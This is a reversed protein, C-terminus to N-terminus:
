ISSSTSSRRGNSIRALLLALFVSVFMTTSKGEFHDEGLCGITYNLCIFLLSLKAIETEYDFTSRSMAIYIPISLFLLFLILGPIGRTALAAIYQNHAYKFHQVVDNVQYRESNAKAMEHFGGVGAGTLPNELFIKWGTKWLEARVGFTGLPKSSDNRQDSSTLYSAVSASIGDVRQKVLPILYSASFLALLLVAIVSKKWLPQARLLYFTFFFGLIIFTIWTARSLSLVVTVVGIICGAMAVLNLPSRPLKIAYFFLMGSLSLQIPGFKNPNMGQVRHDIGQMLDLSIDLFSLLVSCFLTVVIARDSVKIERFLFFMPILFLLYFHRGWLFSSGRGPEGNVYYCFAIWTFNGILVVFFFRELKSTQWIQRWNFLLYITAGLILLAFWTKAMDTYRPLMIVFLAFLATVLIGPIQERSLFFRPHM